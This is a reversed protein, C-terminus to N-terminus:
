METKVKVAKVFFKLIQTGVEWERLTDKFASCVQFYFHRGMAFPVEYCGAAKKRKAVHSLHAM